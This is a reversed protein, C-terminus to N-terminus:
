KSSEFIDTAINFLEIEKNSNNEFKCEAYYGLLHSNNASAEKSFFIFDGDSPM